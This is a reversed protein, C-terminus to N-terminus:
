VIQIASVHLFHRAASVHVGGHGFQGVFQTGFPLLRVDNRATARVGQARQAVHHARQFQGVLEVGQTQIDITEHMCRAARASLSPQDRAKLACAALNRHQANTHPRSLFGM